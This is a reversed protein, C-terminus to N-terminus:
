ANRGPSRICLQVADIRRSLVPLEEEDDGETELPLPSDRSSVMSMLRIATLPSEFQALPNLGPLETLRAPERAVYYRRGSRVLLEIVGSDVSELM